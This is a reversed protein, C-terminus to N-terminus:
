WWATYRGGGFCISRLFTRQKSVFYDECGDQCTTRVPWRLARTSAPSQFDGERESFKYELHHHPRTASVNTQSRPVQKRIGGRTRFNAQQQLCAKGREQGQNESSDEGEQLAPSRCGKKYSMVKVKQSRLHNFGLHVRARPSPLRQPCFWGSQGRLIQICFSLTSFYHQGRGLDSHRWASIGPAMLEKSEWGLATQTNHRGVKAEKM